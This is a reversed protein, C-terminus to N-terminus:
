SIPAAQEAPPANVVAEVEKSLGEPSQDQNDVLTAPTSDGSEHESTATAPSDEIRTGDPAIKCASCIQEWYSDFDFEYDFEGGFEKYLHEKPILDFLNPNFRIKDRTVPDLFPSIGKYFFSLLTPLNVVVGRGLTEVYHNQLIHLVKRAVSISPNTRLTTKSYDILIVCSEVGPPMLDKTRELCWVLHRLQRPTHETNERDPRMHIIPRGDRDFGNIIIKGTEAEIKVEDPPILDPKYERRWELTGKIRKKGDELKWKAARMYRPITDPKTLWRLEWKHYPDSEPLLLTHAYERLATIQAQQEETYKWPKIETGPAPTTLIKHTPAM